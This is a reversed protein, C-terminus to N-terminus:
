RQNQGSLKLWEKVKKEAEEQSVVRGEDIARISREVKERVYLHYQIDEITCDDPLSKILDIVQEKVISM